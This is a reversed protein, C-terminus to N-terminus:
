SSRSQENYISLVKPRFGHFQHAAANVIDTSYILYDALQWHLACSKRAQWVGLTKREIM